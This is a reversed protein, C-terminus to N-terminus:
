NERVVIVQNFPEYIACDGQSIDGNCWGWNDKIKIRPYVTCQGVSCSINGVGSGKARLDWYSYLHYLSHPNDQNPRDRMEVGSVLTTEGDGWDVEYSVLPLQQSDVRTNFTLNALGNTIIEPNATNTGNVKINSIQPRVACYDCTPGPCAFCDGGACTRAIPDYAPRVGGTCLNDPPLWSVSTTAMYRTSTADWEWVGYSQAFLRSVIAVGDSTTAAAFYAYPINEPNVTDIVYDCNSAEGVPNLCNLVTGARPQYPPNLGTRPKEQFLPQRGLTSRDSDDDPKSDWEFPNGDPYPPVAAGFPTYDSKYTLGLIPTVYDSGQYVRGSWFKNQGVSTVTQVARDCRLSTRYPASALTCSTSEPPVAIVPCLNLYYNPNTTINILVNMALPTPYNSDYPYWGDNRSTALNSAVFNDPSGDLAYFNQGNPVCLCGVDDWGSKKSRWLEVGTYGQRLCPMWPWKDAGCGDWGGSLYFAHKYVYKKEATGEMCYYLPIRDQYGGGEEVGDGMIKDVPWWLLCADNSGPYRDHELCYGPWGRQRIGSEDFYDCSLSDDEPYLRCTSPTYWYDTGSILKSELAPRIAVDDFYYNGITGLDSYLIIRARKAVNVSFRGLKFTWDNGAGLEVAPSIVADALYNGAADYLEVKVKAAGVSINKTNLFATLVYTGTVVDFFESTANFTSGLKLLGRGELPYKIGETQAELPNSIVKFISQDWTTKIALPPPEYIWGAPYGNSGAIEFNGNSLNTTQGVQEMAALPYYNNPESFSPTAGYGVKTYGSFNSIASADVITNYTQNSKETILFNSCNGNADVSDCLGIDFCYNEEQGKENISTVKSRCALWKDCARDPEAKILSNSDVSADPPSVVFPYYPAVYSRDADYILGALSGGNQGRLNFPVCGDSFNVVGNCSATDLNQKLQYEIAAEKFEVRDGSGVTASGVIVNCSNNDNSYLLLSAPYNGFSLNVSNGILVLSNTQDLQRLPSSCNLSISNSGAATQGALRYLTKKEIKVNQQNASWGDPISDADVDQNFDGNFILNNSFKSVPDILESCGSTEAPCLGAWGTDPQNIANGEGGLGITKYANVACALDVTEQQCSGGGSCDKDSLCVVNSVSCRKIKKKYWGWASQYGQRWECVQDGPNKFYSTGEQSTYEGCNVADLSCLASGYKGPDNKLYTDQYIISTEYSYPAGLRQCGKDSQNCLKNKDYVIYRYSDAAVTIEDGAPPGVNFSAAQSSESNQTDIMVECGVASESCLYTFSKLYHTQNDRDRYADCGLMALPLPNGALDQNCSDPTQWSNKILYYRDIIETLRINDIYYDGDSDIVLMEGSDTLNALNALNVEYYQWNASLSSISSFFDELGLGNVIKPALTSATISKAVFSLVYSKNTAVLNNLSVSASTSIVQLSRGGVVLSETSPNGGSWGQRTGNEFDHSLVIRINRGTNGTYERCGNQSASCKIGESPVANYICANHESSWTGGNKCVTCESASADWNKDSGTCAGSSTITPDINNDTRRYPHCDDSCNITRKYLHWSKGGDRNYFERCDSNYAPDTPELNYITENCETADPSTVEPEAPLGTGLAKFSFVRLQFGTENSGEWTYFESCSSPNPKICQRLYSYYEIGEGGRAVEDLNTFQDCGVSSLGCSKGTKPIFYTPRTSDFYTETALYTDFGVCEAVCYDQSIVKAPISIGDSLSTFMECGVEAATCQRAYNACSPPDSPAGTCALYSPALKEYALGQERYQSYATSRYGRELKIADIICTPSVINFDLSLSNGTDAADFVHTVQYSQWGSAANFNKTEFSSLSFSDSASCDKAYFSLSFVDGGINYNLPGIAVNKSFSGSPALAQTGDYSDGTAVGVTDWGGITLAEEFSSNVLLNVGLGAKTRIFEHCGENKADCAEADQDLYIKNGSASTCSYAGSSYNYDSCYAQCGVNDVSCGSFDLTNELYSASRGDSQKFTQCTNYNPECSKSSFSWKRREATCYGYLQCSGDNNEKICSQEDACYKDNRTLSLESDAGTGSINQQIIEPGPGQRRCYNLPAKLVWNPDVLGECWAAFYGPYDDGSDFCAVLDGLNRTGGSVGSNEKIFQAAVEWGVPLIRFKRLIIMSRYPYGELYNPELNDGSIFGFVGNANLYGEKMAQGVTMRKQIAQSFKNDIVCNTPGAKNPNPCQALESLINYDGRVTFNPQIIKRLQERAGAIGGSGPGAAFNTLSSWDYPSTTKKGGLKRIQENILTIALQRLFINSADVLADGTFQIFNSALLKDLFERNQKPEGPPGQLLGAINRIDLWGGSEQRDLKKREEALKQEEIVKTQLSLSIGLDNSVPNFMDQFRSLFDPRSLEEEWDKKMESFTCAPRAPRYQSVLGLGIRGKLVADPACLDFDWEKGIREITSGVADDAVDSLYEGWGETIFLPKQGKGGTGLWTATDYAIINLAQSLTKQYLTSWANEKAWRAAQTAFNKLWQTLTIKQQGTDATLISNLTPSSWLASTGGPPAFPQAKAQNVSFLSLSFIFLLIFCGLIIKLFKQKKERERM